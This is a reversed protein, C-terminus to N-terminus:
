KLCTSTLPISPHSRAGLPAFLRWSSLASEARMGIGKGPSSRAFSTHRRFRAGRAPPELWSPSLRLGIGRVEVFFSFATRISPKKMKFLHLFAGGALAQQM